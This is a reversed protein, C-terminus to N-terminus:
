ASQSLSNESKVSDSSDRKKVNPVNKVKTPKAESASRRIGKGSDLSGKRELRPQRKSSNRNTAGECSSNKNTSTNRKSDRNKQCIETPKDQPKQDNEGQCSEEKSCAPTAVDCCKGGTLRWNDNIGKRQLARKKLALVGDSSSRDRAKGQSNRRREFNPSLSETTSEPSDNQKSSHKEDEGEEIIGRLGGKNSNGGKATPLERGDQANEGMSSSRIRPGLSDTEDDRTSTFEPGKNLDGAYSESTYSRDRQMMVDCGPFVVNPGSKMEALSPLYSPGTQPVFGMSRLQQELAEKEKKIKGVEELHKLHYLLMMKANEISDRTGVFLFNVEKKVCKGNEEDNVPCNKNEPPEIRVRVVGSRDVIDQVIKGNKGIVKGVLAKPVSFTEEAFDLYSVAQKICVENEGYIHLSCKEEDVEISRIGPLKRAKQINAGQAGIALGMLNEPLKLVEIFGFHNQAMQLHNATDNIWSQLLMRTRLSRFHMESLIAAKKVAKESRSLCILNALDENYMVLGVGSQHRFERHVSEDKCIQQLDQPVDIICKSYMSKTVAENTNSPRIKDRPVIENFSSDWGVYQIVYFEGKKSVIRALWWCFPATDGAMSFVEVVDDIYLECRSNSQPPLRVKAFPVRKANAWDENPAVTIEEMHINKVYAKYYGGHEEKVEVALEEM